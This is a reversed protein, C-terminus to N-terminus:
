LPTSPQMTTQTTTLAAKCDYLTVRVTSVLGRLLSVTIM